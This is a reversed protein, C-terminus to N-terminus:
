RIGLNVALGTMQRSAILKAADLWNELQLKDHECSFNFKIHTTLIISTPRREHRSDVVQYIYSLHLLM